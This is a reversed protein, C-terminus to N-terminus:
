IQENLDHPLGGYRRLDTGTKHEIQTRIGHSFSWERHLADM